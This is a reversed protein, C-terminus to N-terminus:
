RSNIFESALCSLDGCFGVKPPAHQWKLVNSQDEYFTTQLFRQKSEVALYVYSLKLMYADNLKLDLLGATTPSTLTVSGGSLQLGACIASMSTHIVCRRQEFSNKGMSCLRSYTALAMAAAVYPEQLTESSTLPAFVKLECVQNGTEGCNPLEEMKNYLLNCVAIEVLRYNAKRQDSPYGTQSTLQLKCRPEPLLQGGNWVNTRRTAPEFETTAEVSTAKAGSYSSYYLAFVKGVAAEVRPSFPYSANASANATSNSASRSSLNAVAGARSLSFTTNGTVNAVRPDAALHAPPTRLNTADTFPAFLSLLLVSRKAATVM